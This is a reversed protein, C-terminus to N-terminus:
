GSRGPLEAAARLSECESRRFCTALHDNVVGIAQMAAYLTTPGVFRFGAKRLRKSLDVSADTRTPIEALSRPGPTGRASRPGRLDDATSWLLTGLTTGSAHLELLARANGITAEIKGRHRIISSDALLRIVDADDMTAVRNPDFEHFARRFGERRRLITLWSLGSQFGELSIREFLAIEDTVPVGWETDHYAVYDAASGCWGCRSREDVTSM